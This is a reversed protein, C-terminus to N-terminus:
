LSYMKLGGQVGCERCVYGPSQMKCKSILQLPNGLGTQGCEGPDSASPWHEQACSLLLSAVRAQPEPKQGM